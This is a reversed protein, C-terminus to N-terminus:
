HEHSLALGIYVASLASFIFAQILAVVLGLILFIVPVVL